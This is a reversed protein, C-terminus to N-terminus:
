IRLIIRLALPLLQSVLCIRGYNKSRYPKLRRIKQPRHGAPFNDLIRQRRTYSDGIIVARKRPMKRRVRFRRYHDCQKIQQYRNDFNILCPASNRKRTRAVFKIKIKRHANPKDFHRRLASSVASLTHSYEIVCNRQASRTNASAPEKNEPLQKQRSVNTHHLTNPPMFCTDTQM